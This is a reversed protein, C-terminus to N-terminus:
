GFRDPKGSVDDGMTQMFAISMVMLLSIILNFPHRSIFFLGLNTCAFIKCLIISLKINM